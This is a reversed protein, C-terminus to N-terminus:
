SVLSNDEEHDHDDLTNRRIYESPNAFNKLETLVEDLTKHKLVSWSEFHLGEIAVSGSGTAFAVTKYLKSDPNCNVLVFDIIDMDDADVAEFKVGRYIPVWNLLSGFGDEEELTDINSAPLNYFKLVDSMTTAILDPDLLMLNYTEILSADQEICAMCYDKGQFLNFYSKSGDVVEQGCGDCRFGEEAPIIRNSPATFRMEKHEWNSSHNAKCHMAKPVDAYKGDLDDHCLSCHIEQCDQCWYYFNGLRVFEGCYRCEPLDYEDYIISHSVENLHTVIRKSDILKIMSQIVEEDSLQKLVMPPDDEIAQGPASITIEDGHKAIAAVTEASMVLEKPKAVYYLSSRHLVFNEPIESLLKKTDDDDDSVDNPRSPVDPIDMLSIKVEKTEVMQDVRKFFFSQEIDRITPSEAPLPDYYRYENVLILSLHNSLNM